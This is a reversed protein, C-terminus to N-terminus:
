LANPGLLLRGVARKGLNATQGNSSLIISLRIAIQCYGLTRTYNMKDDLSAQYVGSTRTSASLSVVIHQTCRAEITQPPSKLPLVGDITTARLLAQYSSTPADAAQFQQM